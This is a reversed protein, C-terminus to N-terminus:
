KNSEELGMWSQGFVTLVISFLHYLSNGAESNKGIIRLKEFAEAIQQTSYGTDRARRVVPIDPVQTGEQGGNSAPVSPANNSLECLM